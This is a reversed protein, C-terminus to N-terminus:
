SCVFRRRYSFYIGIVLTGGRSSLYRCHRLTPRMYLNSCLRLVNFCYLLNGVGVGQPHQAIDNHMPKTLVLLLRGGPLAQSAARSKQLPLPSKQRCSECCPRPAKDLRRCPVPVAVPRGYLICSLSTGQPRQGTHRLREGLPASYICIVEWLICYILGFLMRLTHHTM